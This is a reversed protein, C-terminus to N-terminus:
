DRGLNEASPQKLRHGGKLWGRVTSCPLRDLHLGSSCSFRGREEQRRDKRVKVNICFTERTEKGM